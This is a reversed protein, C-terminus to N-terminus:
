RCDEWEEWTSHDHDVNKQIDERELKCLHQRNTRKPFDPELFHRGESEASFIKKMITGTAKTPVGWYYNILNILHSGYDLLCGGGEATKSRWM